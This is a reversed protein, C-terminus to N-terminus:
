KIVVFHEKFIPISIDKFKNRSSGVSFGPVYEGAYYSSLDDVAKVEILFLGPKLRYEFKYIRFLELCGWALEQDPINFTKICIAEFPRKLRTAESVLDTQNSM